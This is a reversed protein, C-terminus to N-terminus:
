TVNAPLAPGPAFRPWDDLGGNHQSDPQWTLLPAPGSRLHRAGVEDPGQREAGRLAPSGPSRQRFATPCRLGPERKQPVTKKRRRVQSTV